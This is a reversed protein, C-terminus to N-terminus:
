ARLRALRSSRAQSGGREVEYLGEGSLISSLDTSFRPKFFLIGMVLIFCTGNLLRPVGNLVWHTIMQTGSPALSFAEAHSGWNVFVTWIPVALFLQFYGQARGQRSQIPTGGDHAFSLDSACTRASGCSTILEGPMTSYTATFAAPCILSTIPFLVLSVKHGIDVVPADLTEM